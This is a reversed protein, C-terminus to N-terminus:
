VMVPARTCYNDHTRTYNDRTCMRYNVERALAISNDSLLYIRM